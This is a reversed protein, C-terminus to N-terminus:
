FNTVAFEGRTAKVATDYAKAAEEATAFLGLHRATGDIRVMARYKGTLHHFHVGKYGSKNTSGRRTNWSNQQSTAFRLNSRRNNLTDGDIHDVVQGPKADLILRHMYAVGDRVPRKPNKAAMFGKGRQTAHWKFALVRDADTADIIAVQGKTLPIEIVECMSKQFLATKGLKDQILGVAGKRRIVKGGWM